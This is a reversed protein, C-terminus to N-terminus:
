ALHHAKYYPVDSWHGCVYQQVAVKSNDKWLEARHAYAEKLDSFETTTLSTNTFIATRYKM